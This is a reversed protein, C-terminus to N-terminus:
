SLFVFKPVEIFATHSMCMTVQLKKQELGKVM